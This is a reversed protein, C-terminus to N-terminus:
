RKLRPHRTAFQEGSRARRDAGHPKGRHHHAVLGIGGLRYFLGLGPGSRGRWVCQAARRNRIFDRWYAFSQGTAWPLRWDVRAAFPEGMLALLRFWSLVAQIVGIVAVPPNPPIVALATIEIFDDIQLVHLAIDEREIKSVPLSIQRM